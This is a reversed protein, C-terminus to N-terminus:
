CGRVIEGAVGNGADVVVKLPRALQIDGAIREVYADGIDRQVRRGTRAGHAFETSSARRTTIRRGVADPRRGRDQLRQLRAPQSGTVSCCGTRLHLRRLLDAHAGPRHRDRRPRGARLASWGAVPRARCGGTAAIVIERLDQEVMLPRGFPRDIAHRRGAVASSAASTTPASSAAITDVPPPLAHKPKGGRRGSRRRRRTRRGAVPHAGATARRSRARCRGASACWYAGAPLGAGAAARGGRVAPHRRARCRGGTRPLSQGRAPRHPLAAM